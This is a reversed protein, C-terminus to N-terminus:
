ESKRSRRRFNLLFEHAPMLAPTSCEGCDHCLNALFQTRKGLIIREGNRLVRRLLRRMRCAHLGMFREGDELLQPPIPNASAYRAVEEGAIRGFITGITMGIGALYGEGLVNGAM